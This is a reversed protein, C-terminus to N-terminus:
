SAVEGYVARVINCTNTLTYDKEILDRAKNIISSVLPKNNLISDVASEFSKLDREILLGTERNRIIYPIDGVKTSIVPVGSAMAELVVTPMAEWYSPLVLATSDKLVRPVDKHEIPGLIDVSVGNGKRALIGQLDKLSQMYSGQGAFKMKIKEHSDINMSKLWNILTGIGKWPELDGLYLLIPDEPPGDECPKFINTDVMNPIYRLHEAAIGYIEHIKDLDVRSVSAIIDSHHITFSGFSKSYIQKALLKVLGADYPPLGVGGHLQLISKKKTLLKALAAQNSTTYLHSHIHFLDADSKTLSHLMVTIPNINWVVVPTFSRHITIGDYDMIGVADFNKTTTYIHVEHEASQAEALNWVYRESGGMQEGVFPCIHAIKM